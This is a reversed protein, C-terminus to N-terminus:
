MLMADYKTISRFKGCSTTTTTTTTTTSTTTSTSTSTTQDPVKAWHTNHKNTNAPNNGGGGRTEHLVFMRVSTSVSLSTTM